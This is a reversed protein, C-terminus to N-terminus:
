LRSLIVARGANERANIFATFADGNNDDRPFSLEQLEPLLEFPPEGDELQLCRSLAEVLGEEIMLTKVKRFPRLLKRWETPDVKNHEESSLGHISHEVTLHNVVSFVQGLLDSIQVMSSVQWDLHWCDIAMVLTVTEIERLYLAVSVRKDFFRFRASDFRLSETTDMLQQLHSVFFTLQNFLIIQLKELRPTTIRRLLANLYTSVGEFRFFHLNPLTLLATTPTDMLQTEVDRRHVPLSFHIVLTELQSMLSIWQLPVNPHFYTTPHRMILDLTVLGVASTLLRSGIPLSFGSLILHRLHPAQLTEPFTLITSNDGFPTTVILYELIPYEEDMAVIHKQLDTLLRVRSIRGHQKLALILQEEDEASINCDARYFDVVLPLHPSHALMDSVPTGYTCVLSIGLYSASGLLISRWRHCVHALRYWWRGRAWPESGGWLRSFQDEDEGFLFPRYLHFVHLLSDDDLIHISATRPRNGM